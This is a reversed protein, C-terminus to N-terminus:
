IEHIFNKIRKEIRLIKLNPFNKFFKRPSYYNKEKINKYKKGILIKHFNGLTIRNPDTLNFIGVAKKFTKLILSSIDKTHILNLNLNRNYIIIKKKNKHNLLIRKVLRQKNMKNGYVYGLRYSLFRISEKYCYVKLINEQMLKSLSYGSRPRLFSEENCTDKKHGYLSCSSALIIKKVPIKLNQLLRILGDVNTNRCQEWTSQDEKIPVFSSFFFLYDIKKIKLTQNLKINKNNLDFYYFNKKTSKKRSILYTKYKIELSNVLDQAAVSTSGFFVINM